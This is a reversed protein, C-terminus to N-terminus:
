FFQALGIQVFWRSDPKLLRGADVRPVVNAILTPILRLGAGVGLASSATQVEGRANLPVFSAADCFLAGQVAWREAFRYAQRLEVNATLQRQNRYFSDTLGRVEQWSSLLLSHNANGSSIAEAIFQAGLVTTPSLRLAGSGRLVVDHRPEGAPVFAATTLAASLQYGSPALDDWALEDVVCELTTGVATGSRSVVGGERESIREHYAFVSPQVRLPSGYHYPLQWGFMAGAQDRRWAEGTEFDLYSSAYSAGVIPAGADPSYPHAAWSIAGNLGRDQWAASVTLLSATGLFNYETAGVAVFTDILTRGTSFAISPILTWKERLVVLLRKGELRVEVKDFIALNNLRREFELLETPEFTAPAQRPLLDVVTSRRTRRLGRIEVSEVFPRPPTTRLEPAPQPEAQLPAALAVAGWLALDFRM